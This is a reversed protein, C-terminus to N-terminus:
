SVDLDDLLGKWAVDEPNFSLNPIPSSKKTNTGTSNPSLSNKNTYNDSSISQGGINRSKNDTTHDTHRFTHEDAEYRGASHQQASPASDDRLDNGRHSYTNGKMQSSVLLIDNMLYPHIEPITSSEDEAAKNPTGSSSADNNSTSKFTWSLGGLASLEPSTKEGRLALHPNKLSYSAKSHLRQVKQLTKTSRKSSSNCARMAFEHVLLLAEELSKMAELALTSQPHRIVVTAVFISSALVHNWLIGFRSFGQPEVNMISRILGITAQASRFAAFFSPSYRNSVLEECTGLCVRVFYRRHLYLCLLEKTLLTWWTQFREPTQLGDYLDHPITRSGLSAGFLGTAKDRLTRDMILVDSYRQQLRSVLVRVEVLLTSTIIRSHYHYKAEPDEPPSGIDCDYFERTILPPRGYSLGILGTHLTGFWSDLLVIAWFVGRREEELSKDLKLNLHEPNRDVM